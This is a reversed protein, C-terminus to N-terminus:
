NLRDAISDTAQTTSREAHEFFTSPREIAHGDHLAHSHQSGDLAGGDGSRRQHADNSPLRVSRASRRIGAGNTAFVEIYDFLEMKAESLSAFRDALESTVTSFFSEM